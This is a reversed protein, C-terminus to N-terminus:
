KAKSINLALESLKKEVAAFQGLMKVKPYARLFANAARFSVEHKKDNVNVAIVSTGAGGVALFPGKGAADKIGEDIKAKEVAFFENETVIFKLLDELEKVTLKAEKKSGDHLNTVVLQGDAQIKLYPAEGKRVFGGAGPDYSIVVEKSDKPLVIAPNADDGRLPSLIFTALFLAAFAISFLRFHSLRM